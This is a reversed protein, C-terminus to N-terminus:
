KLVALSGIVFSQHDIDRRNHRNYFVSEMGTTFAEKIDNGVYEVSSYARTVIDTHRMLHGQTNFSSSKDESSRRDLFAVEMRTLVNNPLTHEMRHGFEHLLVSEEEKKNELKDQVYLYSEDRVTNEDKLVWVPNDQVYKKRNKLLEEHTEDEKDKYNFGQAFYPKYEWQTKDQPEQIQFKKVDYLYTKVPIGFFGVGCNKDEIQYTINNDKLFDQMEKNYEEDNSAVLFFTKFYKATNVSGDTTNGSDVWDHEYFGEIDDAIEHHSMKKMTLPQSNNSHQIWDSPYKDSVSNKLKDVLDSDSHASVEVNGGMQRIQSLVKLVNSSFKENEMNSIKDELADRESEKDKVLDRKAQVEQNLNEEEKKDELYAQYLTEEETTRNNKKSLEEYYDDIKYNLDHISRNKDYFEDKLEMYKDVFQEYDDDLPKLEDNIKDIEKNINKIEKKEERSYTIEKEAIKLISAGVLTIEKERQEDESNTEHIKENIDQAFMKIDDIKNLVNSELSFKERQSPNNFSTSYILKEAKRRLRRQTSNDCLCRRGGDVKSQCMSKM